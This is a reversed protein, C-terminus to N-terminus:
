EEKMGDMYNEFVRRFNEPTVSELQGNVAFSIRGTEESVVVTVSDTVESIGLAARHRSGYKGAFPKTTPTYFVSAAVIMNDKIVVAGDHLRTGPYFITTLLESTVPAKIIVGNKIIDSLSSSREFTIIAGTKTKSLGLVTTEITRYLDDRSYIKEVAIKSQKIHQQKFPNALFKRLDGLNSFFTLTLFVGTLISISIYIYQLNFIFATISFLFSILLAIYATKRKSVRLLFYVLILYLFLLLGLQTAWNEVKLVKWIFEYDM